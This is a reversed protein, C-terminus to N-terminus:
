YQHHSICDWISLVLNAPGKEGTLYETEVSEKGTEMLAVKMLEKLFLPLTIVVQTLQSSDGKSYAADPMKQGEEPSPLLTRRQSLAM